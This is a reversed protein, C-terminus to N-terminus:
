QNKILEALVEKAKELQNDYEEESYYRDGDFECVIDPEVGTGHINIGNPTYYTSITLKVASGDSLTIPQQVIGKGFTTTGVLTGLGYDKIAGALIESASASNGDILVVLPVELERKGDCSYEKRNGERDETYVILGEPLIRRAIEVVANLSGGPNARLDIILGKMGSGKAVALAETFQDITVEDFETIQIYAMGDDFMEQQVTPSEVKRREVEVDVYEGDRLFTIVVKTYEPGKILNVVETLSLGYTEEGGVAYIYDDVRIDVESAPAGDIIGSIKALGMDTDMAVYAGIGYYVGQISELTEQLEEATYYESYPDGLSSVMGKLISDVMAQKDTEEQYFYRDIVQEVLEMKQVLEETVAQETAPEGTTSNEHQNGAVPESYDTSAIKGIAVFIFVVAALFLAVGLGAAMGGLFYKGKHPKEQVPRQYYEFNNDMLKIATGPPM